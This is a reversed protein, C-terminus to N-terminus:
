IRDVEKGEDILNADDEKIRFKGPRPRGEGNINDNIHPFIFNGAQRTYANYTSPQDGVKGRSMKKNLKEREEEIAEFHNYVEEQYSGMLVNKYHVTKQPFKDPTAGLYYSVLGLIRRQFMNKTNENLSQYNTTSIYLQEFIAESTPFSGPRLLNFILSFEFPNNVAPTASM